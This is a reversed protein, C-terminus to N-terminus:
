VFKRSESKQAASCWTVNCPRLSLEVLPINTTDCCLNLVPVIQLREDVDGNQV